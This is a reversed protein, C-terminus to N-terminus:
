PSRTIAAIRCSVGSIPSGRRIGFARLGLRQLFFLLSLLLLGDLLGADLDVLLVPVLGLASGVDVGGIDDALLVAVM